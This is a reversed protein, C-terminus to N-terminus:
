YGCTFGHHTDTSCNLDSDFIIHGRRHTWCGFSVAVGITATHRVSYEINVGLVSSSGGLGQPGIGIANISDELLREMAAAKENPNHSGVPRLLALKSHLAATEISGAIGVGVLLPPCANLGYSTIRDLIVRAVGEYGDGPMLVMAQGPLSCGGGALYTYIGCSDSDPIIDWFLAPAGTGTNNGTNYEDFAEVANPRLPTKATAKRVADHLVDNLQHILPFRSGCEIRFQVLGTDQCSPRVLEAALRMNEFMMDYISLAAPDNEAARLEELKSVVDDPLHIATHGIFSAMIDTFKRKKEEITMYIGGNRNLRNCLRATILRPLASNINFLFGFLALTM